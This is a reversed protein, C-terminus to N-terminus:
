GREWDVTDVLWHGNQTILNLRLRGSDVPMTVEVLGESRPILVPDDTLRDAPVGAPDVGALRQGLDATAFPVLRSHWRQASIGRHALWAAAFGRAVAEPEAAGPSTRPTAPAATSIAGDDGVGPDVTSIPSVPAGTLAAGSGTGGAFLRASGVLGLVVVALALALGFRSRLVRTALFEIARRM